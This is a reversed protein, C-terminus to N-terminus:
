HGHDGAGHHANIKEHANYMDDLAPRNRVRRLYTISPRMNLEKDLVRYGHERTSIVQSVMSSPDNIDGFVIAQTPCTQACASTMTSEDYKKNSRKENERIDRTRGLCFNCKEMIGKSRITIAPNLMMQLPAELMEHKGSTQLDTALNKVVRKLPDRSGQPGFRYKSYEYFNFRRVKYPCNNACYRTGICRNYVQINIGEDNHMTAMAPCVEECSAHGCQQCLMPQNIFEIFHDDPATDEGYFGQGEVIDSERVDQGRNENTVPTSYYRDIRIWHMERGLRVQDRGVVPVNNEISCAVVCANCGTCSNMDIAMGWRRGPYVHTSSWLSLNNSDVNQRDISTTGRGKEWLEHHHGARDGLAPDQNHSELVDDLAIDRGDMYDHGQQCALKYTENTKEIEVGIGWNNRGDALAFANAYEDKRVGSEKAVAGAHSRGWGLFMEVTGAKTGPQIHVPMHLSQSGVTVKVVQHQDIKQAYADQLSMALYNDWSNRSVPDAAEQLMANNMQSGDGMIRSASLLLKLGAKPAPLLAATVAAPDFPLAKATKAIKGLAVGRSLAANWFNNASAAAGISAHVGKKWTEEVYSHWSRVGNAPAYWLPLQEVRSVLKAFVQGDTMIAKFSSPLEAAVVFAMLSEELARANWLPVICPQQIYYAGGRPSSDGWSELDHLIPMVYDVGDLRATEDFREALVVVKKAGAIAKNLLAQDGYNYALNADAIILTEIKGAAASELLVTSADYSNAVTQSPAEVTHGENGLISNLFNAAMYLGLSNDGSHCAGGVYILSHKHAKHASLLQEVTYQAVGQSVSPNDELKVA